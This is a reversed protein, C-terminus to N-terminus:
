KVKVEILQQEGAAKTRFTSEAKGVLLKYERDPLLDFTLFDNTSRFLM